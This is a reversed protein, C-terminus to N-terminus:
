LRLCITETDSRMQLSPRRQIKCTVNQVRRTQTSLYAHTLSESQRTLEELTSRQTPMKLDIMRRRNKAVSIGFSIRDRECCTKQLRRQITPSTKM